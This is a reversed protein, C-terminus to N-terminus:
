ATDQVKQHGLRNRKKTHIDGMTSFLRECGASNCVFSLVLVALRTVPNPQYHAKWIEVPDQSFALPPSLKLVGGLTLSVQETSMSKLFENNWFENSFAGKRYHYDRIEMAFCEPVDNVRFVRKYLRACINWLALPSLVNPNFIQPGVLPNLYLACLFLDQDAKSWHLELSNIIARV